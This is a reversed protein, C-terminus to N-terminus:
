VPNCPQFKTSIECRCFLTPDNNLKDKTSTTSDFVSIGKVSLYVYKDSSKKIVSGGHTAFPLTGITQIEGSSINLQLNRSSGTGGFLFITDQGNDIPAMCCNEIPLKNTLIKAFLQQGFTSHVFVILFLLTTSKPYMM